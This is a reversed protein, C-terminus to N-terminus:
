QLPQEAVVIQGKAFSVATLSSFDRGDAIMVKQVQCM